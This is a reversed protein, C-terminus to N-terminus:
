YGTIQKTKKKSHYPSWRSRCTSVCEKGVRREESRVVLRGNGSSIDIPLDRPVTIRYDVECWSSLLPCSSSVELVGDVVETRQDTERLGHSIRAVVTVVDVDDAFVEISGNAGDVELGSLEAAPITSTREVEEHAVM